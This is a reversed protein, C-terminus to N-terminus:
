LKRLILWTGADTKGRYVTQGNANETETLEAEGLFFPIEAGAVSLKITHNRVFRVNMKKDSDDDLLRNNGRNSSTNYQVGGVNLRWSGAIQHKKATAIANVYFEGSQDQYQSKAQNYAKQAAEYQKEIDFFSNDRNVAIDFLEQSLGTSDFYTISRSTERGESDYSIEYKAYTTSDYQEVYTTDSQANLNFAPMLFLAIAFLLQKM